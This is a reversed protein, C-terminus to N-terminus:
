PQGRWKALLDAAESFTMGRLTLTVRPESAKRPAASEACVVWRGGRKEALIRGSAAWRRATREEIGQSLAFETLNM